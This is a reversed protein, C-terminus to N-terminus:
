NNSKKNYLPGAIAISSIDLEYNNKILSQTDIGKGYFLEFQKLYLEDLLKKNNKRVLEDYNSYCDYISIPRVRRMHCFQVGIFFRNTFAIYNEDTFIVALIAGTAFFSDVMQLCVPLIPCAVGVDIVEKKSNDFAFKGYLTNIRYGDSKLEFLLKLLNLRDFDFNAKDSSHIIGESTAKLDIIIQM